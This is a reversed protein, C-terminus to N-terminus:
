ICIIDELKKELKEIRWCQYWITGPLTVAIFFACILVKIIDWKSEAGSIAFGCALNIFLVYFYGGFLCLRFIFRMCKIMKKKMM